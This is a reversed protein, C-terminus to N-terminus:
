GAQKYRTRLEDIERQFKEMDDLINSSDSRREGDKGGSINEDLGLRRESEEIPSYLAHENEGKEDVPEYTRRLSSESAVSSRRQETSTRRYETSTRRSETPSSYSVHPRQQDLSSRNSQRRRPPPPPPPMNSGTSEGSVNRHTNRNSSISSTRHVSPAPSSPQSELTSRRSSPPEPVSRPMRGSSSRQPLETSSSNASSNGLNALRAGHRSPPPPPPSKAGLLPDLTNPGPSQPADVSYQSSITLNSSSRSRNGTTATKLQSQRRSLPVPPPTKKQRTPGESPTSPQTATPLIPPSQLPTTDQTSIHLSQPATVPTPPLPKQMDSSDTRRIAPPSPAQAPETAAFSEFSVTQPQRPAVLKGHRHKPAPPPKKKGKKVESVLGMSEDEDSAAMDVSTRPSDARTEQPPEFLSQRSISSTDTSSSTEFQAGALPQSVSTPQPPPGSPRPTPKGTMLLNKFSEVDLSARSSGLMPRGTNTREEDNEREQPELSALTRSFPNAPVNSPSLIAQPHNVYPSPSPPVDAVAMADKGIVRANAEGATVSSNAHGAPTVPPPPSAPPGQSSRRDRLESLTAHKDDFSYPPITTTPSLIRVSKKTKTPPPAADELVHDNDERRAESVSGDTNIFSTQPVAAPQRPAQSLRFPNGSSM